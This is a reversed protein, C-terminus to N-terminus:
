ASLLTPSVYEPRTPETCPDSYATVGSMTRLTFVPRLYSEWRRQLQSEPLLGEGHEILDADIQNAVLSVRPDEDRLIAPLRTLLWAEVDRLSRHGALYEAVEELLSQLM